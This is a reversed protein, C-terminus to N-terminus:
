FSLLTAGISFPRLGPDNNKFMPTFTYSAYISIFWYKVRVMATAALLNLNFDDYVKERVDEGDETYTIRSNSGIRISGIVGMSFNFQRKHKDTKKTRFNLFLPVCITQVVLRSRNIAHVSDLAGVVPTSFTQGPFDNAERFFVPRNFSYHYWEFGLGTVLNFVNKVLNFRWEFVNLRVNTNRGYNQEMFDYAGQPQFNFDQDVFGDVGLDIGVWVLDQSYSGKKGINNVRSKWDNQFKRKKKGTGTNTDSSSERDDKGGYPWIHSSGTANFNRGAPEGLYQVDSAGSSLVTLNNTAFVVVDCAGSVNILGNIVEMEKLMIDSAGSGSVSLETVKGTLILDSAGSSEVDLTTALVKGSITSAGSQSIKLREAVLSDKITVESAGSTTIENLSIYRVVILEPLGGSSQESTGLYLKGNRIEYRFNELTKELGVVQLGPATSKELLITLNGGSEIKDFPELSFEKQNQANLTTITIFAILSLIARKM